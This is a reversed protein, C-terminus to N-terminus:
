PAEDRSAETLSAAAGGHRYQKRYQSPSEGTLSRFTKSFHKADSFCLMESVEKISLETYSLLHRAIEIRRNIIYQMPTVGYKQKFVRIIHSQSTYFYSAIDSLRIPRDISNEIYNYVDKALGYSTKRPMQEQGATSIPSVKQVIALLKRCVSNISEQKNDATMSKLIELIDALERYVNVKRILISDTLGYLNTISEVFDGDVTVFIKELLEDPDTYYYHPRSRNLFFFDGAEVTYIKDLTSLYGKGAFVYEFNYKDFEDRVSINHSSKYHPNPCTIGALYVNLLKSGSLQNIYYIKEKKFNYFM